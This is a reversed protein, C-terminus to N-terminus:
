YLTRTQPRSLVVGGLTAVTAIEVVFPVLPVDHLSAGVADLVLGATLGLVAPVGVLWWRRRDLLSAVGMAGLALLIPSLHEPLFAM